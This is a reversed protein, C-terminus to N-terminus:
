DLLVILKILIILMHVDRHFTKFSKVDYGLNTSSFHVSFLLNHIDYDLDEFGNRVKMGSPKSVIIDRRLIDSENGRPRCLDFQSAQLLDIGPNLFNILVKFINLLCM